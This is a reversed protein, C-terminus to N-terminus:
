CGHGRWMLLLWPWQQTLPIVMHGRWEPLALAGSRGAAAARYSRCPPSRKRRQMPVAHQAQVARCLCPASRTCWEARVRHAAMICLLHQEVSRTRPHQGGGRTHAHPGSGRTHAHQEVGRTHAHQGVGRTHAHQEVGRAHAHQEVGRVTRAARARALQQQPMWARGLLQQPGVRWEGSQAGGQPSSAWRAQKGAQKSVQKSTSCCPVPQM